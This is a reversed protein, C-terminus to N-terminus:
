INKIIEPPEQTHNIKNQNIFPMVTSLYKNNVVVLDTQILRRRRRMFDLTKEYNKWEHKRYGFFIKKGISNHGVKTVQFLDEILSNPEGVFLYETDFVTFGSDLILQLLHPQGSYEMWMLKINSLLSGTGLIAGLEGGQLDLKLFDIKKLNQENIVDDLRKVPVKVYNNDTSETTALKGVFSTGKVLFENGITDKTTASIEFNGAGSVDGLAAPILTIKKHNKIRFESVNAPNPEFALIKLISSECATLMQQSTEGLGAGGDIFINFDKDNAVCYKILPEFKDLKLNKIEKKEDIM